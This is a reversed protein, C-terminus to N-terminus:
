PRKAKASWCRRAKAPPGTRRSLRAKMEAKGGPVAMGCSWGRFRQDFLALYQEVSNGWGFRLYDQERAWVQNSKLDPNDPPAQACNLVTLSAAFVLRAPIRLGNTVIM